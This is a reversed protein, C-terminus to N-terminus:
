FLIKMYLLFIIQTQTGVRHWVCKWSNDWTIRAAFFDMIVGHWSCKTFTLLKKGWWTTKIPLALRKATSPRSQVGNCRMGEWELGHLLEFSPHLRYVLCNCWGSVQSHSLNQVGCIVDASNFHRLGLCRSTRLFDSCNLM